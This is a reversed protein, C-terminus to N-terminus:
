QSTLTEIFLMQLKAISETKKWTFHTQPKIWPARQRCDSVALTVRMQRVCVIGTFVNPYTHRWWIYVVVSDTTSSVYQFITVGVFPMGGMTTNNYYTIWVM